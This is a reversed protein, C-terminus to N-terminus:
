VGRRYGPIHSKGAAMLLIEPIREEICAKSYEIFTDLTTRDSTNLYSIHIRDKFTEWTM